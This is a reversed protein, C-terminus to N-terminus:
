GDEKFDKLLNLFKFEQDLRGRWVDGVVEWIVNQEVSIFFLEELNVMRKGVGFIFFFMYQKRQRFSGDLKEYIM